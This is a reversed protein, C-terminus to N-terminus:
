VRTCVEDYDRALLLLQELIEPNKIENKENFDSSTVFVDNPLVKMNLYSLIPKLHKEIAQQHEPNGGNAVLAIPKGGLVHGPILDFLNKLAGPISGHLITTGLVYGDASAVKSIIRQTDENYKEIPRGDCFDLSYDKLDVWEIEVEPNQKKIQKLLYETVISTKSGVLTGSMGLIKM